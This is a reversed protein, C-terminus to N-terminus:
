NAVLEEGVTRVRCKIVSQVGAVSGRACVTHCLTAAGSSSSEAPSNRMADGSDRSGDSDRSDRSSEAPSNHITDGSESAFRKANPLYIRYVLPQRKGSNRIIEPKKRHNVVM